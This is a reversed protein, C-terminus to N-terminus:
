GRPQFQTLDTEEDYGRLMQADTCEIIVVDITTLAPNYGKVMHGGFVNGNEDCMTGHFHIDTSGDKQCVVGTGSLFEIPGGKQLVDGYGAKVKADAKPVLYMYGSSSFSGFCTM